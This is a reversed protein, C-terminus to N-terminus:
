LNGFFTNTNIYYQHFSIFQILAAAQRPIRMDDRLHRIDGLYYHALANHWDFFDDDIYYPVRGYHVTFFVYWIPLFQPSDMFRPLDTDM